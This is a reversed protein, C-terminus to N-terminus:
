VANEGHGEPKCVGGHDVRQEPLARADLVHQARAHAEGRVAVYLQLVLQGGVDESVVSEGSVLIGESFINKDRSLGEGKGKEQGDLPRRRQVLDEHDEHPVRM